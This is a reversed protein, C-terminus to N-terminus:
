KRQAGCGSLLVAGAWWCWARSPGCHWRQHGSLQQQQAHQAHQWQKVWRRQEPHQGGPMGCGFASGLANLYHGRQGRVADAATGSSRQSSDLQAYIQTPCLFPGPGECVVPLVGLLLLEVVLAGGPGMGTSHIPRRAVLRAREAEGM